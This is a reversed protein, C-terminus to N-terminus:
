PKRVQVDHGLAFHSWDPWVLSLSWAALNIAVVLVIAPLILFMMGIGGRAHIAGTIALCALLGVNRVAHLSKCLSTVELGSEQLARRLGYETYRQFDFPADHLPYLFPMSIWASGGPKLVRAIEAAGKTPAVVHELVELCIVGDFSADSFPLAAADAFVDPRAAYLDRGTPPFDLAFYEVALPLHPQIWGDSAGIDLVRGSFEALGAPPRRRGLLWQPHLPTRKVLAAFARLRNM